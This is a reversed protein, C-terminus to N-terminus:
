QPAQAPHTQPLSTIYVYGQDDTATPAATGDETTVEPEGDETAQAHLTIVEGQAGVAYAASAVTERTVPEGQENLIYVSTVQPAAPQAPALVPDSYVSQVPAQNEDVYVGSDGSGDHDVYVGSDSAGRGGQEMYDAPSPAEGRLRQEEGEIDQPRFGGWDRVWLWVGGQGTHALLQQFLSRRAETGLEPVLAQVRTQVQAQFAAAEQADGAKRALESSLDERFWEISSRWAGEDSLAVLPYVLSTAAADGWAKVEESPEPQEEPMPHPAASPEEGTDAPPSPPTDGGDAPAAPAENDASKLAVLGEAIHAVAEAAELVAPPPNARDYDEDRGQSASRTFTLSVVNLATNLMNIAAPAMDLLEAAAPAKETSVTFGALAGAATTLRGAHDDPVARAVATAATAVKEAEAAVAAPETAGTVGSLASTAANVRLQFDTMGASPYQALGGVVLPANAGVSV